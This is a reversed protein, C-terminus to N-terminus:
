NVVAPTEGLADNLASMYTLTYQAIATVAEGLAEGGITPMMSTVIVCYMSAAVLDLRVDACVPLLKERVFADIDTGLVQTAIVAEAM